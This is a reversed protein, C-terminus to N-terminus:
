AWDLGRVRRINGSYYFRCGQDGVVMFVYTYLPVRGYGGLIHYYYRIM